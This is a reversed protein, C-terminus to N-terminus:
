TQQSSNIIYCCMECWYIFQPLNRQKPKKGKEKFVSSKKPAWCSTQTYPKVRLNCQTTPTPSSPGRPRRGAWSTRLTEEMIYFWIDTQTHVHVCLCMHMLVWGAPFSVIQSWQALVLMCHKILFNGLYTTYKILMPAPHRRNNHQKPKLWAKSTVTATWTNTLHFQFNQLLNIGYHRRFVKYFLGIWANFFKLLNSDKLFPYITVHTNQIEKSIMDRFGNCEKM